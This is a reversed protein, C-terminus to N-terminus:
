EIVLEIFFNQTDVEFEEMSMNKLLITKLSQGPYIFGMVNPATTIKVPMHFNNVDAQWRYGVQLDAGKQKLAIRLVPIDKYRLYQDFLYSYDTGTRANIFDVLDDSTITQYRFQKQIDHLLNVWLMDNDLVSRFTHLMLSGKSYMDAINYHIHNVDYVGIVPEKGSVANAQDDLFEVDLEKGFLDGSVLMEAYTAFAEHVWMDAIDKTTIANGWWEHASEHWLLPNADIASDANIKGICVGSQHEMPYVSEVLTFGDRRFPYAGFNKEFTRLMPKVQEFLRRAKELNYAMVYYDISLTDASIYRDQFRVYKGINFTVDYNNIPYSVFWEYRMRDGPLVTKRQLRGIAYIVIFPFLDFFMYYRDLGSSWNFTEFGNYAFVFM